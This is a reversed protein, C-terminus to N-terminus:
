IREGSDHSLLSLHRIFVWHVWWTAYFVCCISECPVLCLNGQFSPTAAKRGNLFKQFTIFLSYVNQTLRKAYSSGIVPLYTTGTLFIACPKYNLYSVFCPESNQFVAVVFCKKLHAAAHRNNPTCLAVDYRLLWSVQLLACCKELQLLFRRDCFPLNGWPPRAEQACGCCKHFFAAFANFFRWISTRKKKRRKKNRYM